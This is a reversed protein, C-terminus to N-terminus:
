SEEHADSCRVDLYNIISAFSPRVDPNHAWCQEILTRWPKPVGREIKPREGQM